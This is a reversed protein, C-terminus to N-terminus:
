RVGVIRRLVARCMKRWFAPLPNENERWALLEELALEPTTIRGTKRSVYIPYLILAGAVLEDLTLVRKRRGVPCQDVTLGWSAYFPQGYTVVKKGRLLAELGALSALVHVEDVAGLLGHMTLDTVVEDCYVAASDEDRGTLRLGAVVDPHPKYIVYAGPNANRVARLLDINRRMAPAGYALSADTEVQGPVLIVREAHEPRAWTGFGVNYKTLGAEVIRERLLRARELLAADFRQSSLLTELDSARTADYYIGTKDIVWSVPRALDAGLGVSRLFGDEVRWVRAGSGKQEPAPHMGWVALVANAPVDEASNVFKLASNPLFRRIIQRKWPSFNAVYIPGPQVEPQPM